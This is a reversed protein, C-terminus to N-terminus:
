PQSRFEVAQIEGDWPKDSALLYSVRATRGRLASCSTNKVPTNSGASKVSVKGLDDAHLHMVLMQAKLTIRIQPASTCIVDTITGVMSYVRPAASFLPPVPAAAAPPAASSATTASPKDDPETKREIRLGSDSTSQSANGLSEQPASPAPRSAQAAREGAKASGKSDNASAPGGSMAKGAAEGRALHDLIAAVQMQYGRDGPALTAARQADALARQMTEPRMAYVTALYYWAPAFDPNLAASKEFAEAAGAPVGVFGGRSMAALGEGYYTLADNPDLQQAKAFHKDAEDLQTQQLYLLGLSQEAVAISPDAMLADELKSEADERRGRNAWFEGIRADMEGASLTRSAGGSDGGGAMAIDTPPANVQKIYTDLRSQLQNLDGFVQRAANVSDAGHEILDVYRDLAKESTMQPDALLFHVLARSEAFFVTNKDGSSYYPSDRDVHLVLDLPLLPSEFLVSMDEPDPRGLRAGKDTLEMSGYVNEYGEELWPPLSRYSLRLIMRAYDRYIEEYPTHGSVNTRIAIFTKEPGPIFQGNPQIHRKDPPFEPFLKTFSQADRAALIRIPIGTSLRAHPMTAQIVRRVQEFDHLVKRAAGEGGDSTVIFYPSRMEVWIDPKEKKEKPKKERDDARSAPMAVGALFPLALLIALVRVLRLPM